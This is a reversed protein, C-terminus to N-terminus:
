WIDALFVVSNQKLVEGVYMYYQAWMQWVRWDWAFEENSLM